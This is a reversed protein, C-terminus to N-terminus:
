FADKRSQFIIEYVKGELEGNLAPILIKPYEWPKELIYPDFTQDEDKYCRIIYHALEFAEMSSLDDFVDLYNENTAKDM